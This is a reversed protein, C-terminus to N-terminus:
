LLTIIGQLVLLTLIGALLDDMIIDVGYSLKQSHYIFSPKLIDFFRFLIFAVFYISIDKPIFLLSVWMGITEDIVIYSPDKENSYISFRYCCYFGILIILSLIIISIHYPIFFFLILAIFSSLTGPFPTLYGIYFFTLFIEEFKNKM